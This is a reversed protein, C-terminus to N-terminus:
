RIMHAACTLSPDLDLQLSGTTRVPQLAHRHLARLTEEGVLPAHRAVTTRLVEFDMRGLADVTSVGSSELIFGITAASLVTGRRRMAEEAAEATAGSSGVVGPTLEEVLSSAHQSGYVDNYLKESMRLFSAAKWAPVNRNKMNRAASHRLTHVRIRKVNLQKSTADVSTRVRNTHRTKARFLRGLQAPDVPKKTFCENAIRDTDLSGDGLTPMPVAGDEFSLKAYNRQLGCFVPKAADGEETHSLLRKLLCKSCRTEPLALGDENTSVASVGDESPAAREPCHISCAVGRHCVKAEQNAKGAFFGIRMVHESLEELRARILAYIDSMRLGLCEGAAAITLLLEDAAFSPNLGGLWETMERDALEDARNLNPTSVAQKVKGRAQRVIDAATIDAIDFVKCQRRIQSLIDFLGTKTYATELKGTAEVPHWGRARRAVGGCAKKLSLSAEAVSPRKRTSARHIAPPSPLSSSASSHSMPALSSMASPVSRSATGGEPTLTASPLSTLATGGDSTLTPDLLPGKRYSQRHPRPVDPTAVPATQEVTRTPTAFTSSMSSADRLPPSAPSSPASQLVSARPSAGQTNTALPPLFSAAFSSSRLPQTRESVGSRRSATLSLSVAPAGMQVVRMRLKVSSSPAFRSRPSRPLELFSARPSSPSQPETVSARRLLPESVAEEMLSPVTHGATADAIGAVGTVNIANDGCNGFGFGEDEEEDHDDVESNDDSSAEDGDGLARDPGDGVHAMVLPTADEVRFEFERLVEVSPISVGEGIALASPSAPVESPASPTTPGGSAISSASTRATTKRVTAFPLSCAAREERSGLTWTAWRKRCWELKRSRQEEGAPLEEPCGLQKM